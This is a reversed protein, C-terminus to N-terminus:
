IGCKIKGSMIHKNRFEEKNVNRVKSRKKIEEQVADFTKRDIIAEHHEKHKIFDVEGNNKKTRHELFNVTYSKRQILDGVYKENKIINLRIGDGIVYKKVNEM